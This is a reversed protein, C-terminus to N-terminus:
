ESRNTVLYHYVNPNERLVTLLPGTMAWVVREEVDPVRSMQNPECGSAALCQHLIEHLLTDSEVDPTLDERIVILCTIPSSYGCMTRGPALLGDREDAQQKAEILDNSWRITYLLHGIRVSTPREIM